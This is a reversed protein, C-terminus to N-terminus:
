FEEVVLIEIRSTEIAKVRSQPSDAYNRLDVHMAVTISYFITAMIGEAFSIAELLGYDPMTAQGLSYM